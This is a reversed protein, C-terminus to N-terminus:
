SRGSKCVSAQGLERPLLLWEQLGPSSAPPWQRWRLCHPHSGRSPTGCRPRCPGGELSLHISFEIKTASSHSFLLPLRGGGPRPSKPLKGRLVGSRGCKSLSSQSRISTFGHEVCRCGEHRWARIQAKVLCTRRRFSSWELGAAGVVADLARRTGGAAPRAAGSGTRPPVPTGGLQPRVHRGTQARGSCGWRGGSPSGSCATARGAGGEDAIHSAVPPTPNTKVGSQTHTHTHRKVCAPPAM